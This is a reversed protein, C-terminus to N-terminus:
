NRGSLRIRPDILQIAIDVLFNTVVILVTIYIVLTQTLPFDRSTVAGILLKGMGPIGYVQEIIISGSLVSAVIMGILPVVAVIANKLVHLYLIWTEGAGKGRATRVYDEGLEELMATRIYKTLIATQPIAISLAPWFLSRFFGSVNKTYSIYEGPTFFHLVMGFIWMLLICLFFNPVSIGLITLFHIIREVWTGRKRAALIGLPIGLLLIIVLSILGLALTVPLRGKLLQS